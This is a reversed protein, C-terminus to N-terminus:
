ISFYVFKHFLPYQGIGQKQFIPYQDIGQKQSFPYQDIGQKWRLYQSIYQYMSVRYHWIFMSTHKNITVNKEALYAAKVSKPDIKM